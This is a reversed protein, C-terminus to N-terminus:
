LDRFLRVMGPDDELMVSGELDFAVALKGEAKAREVDELTGALVFRDDHAELWARFGAIVRMVQSLPNMDMGVNVSVFSIGAARHRELAAMSTGPVLPLCAHADWVLSKAHVKRARDSITSSEASMM